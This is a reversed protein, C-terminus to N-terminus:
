AFVPDSLLELWELMARIHNYILIMSQTLSPTSSVEPLQMSLGMPALSSACQGWRVSVGTGTYVWSDCPNGGPQHTHLPILSHLHRARPLPYGYKVIKTHGVCEDVYFVGSREKKGLCDLVEM